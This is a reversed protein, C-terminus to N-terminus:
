LAGLSLPCETACYSLACLKHCGFSLDFPYSGPELLIGANCQSQCQLTVAEKCLRCQVIGPTRAEEAVSMKNAKKCKRLLCDRRCLNARTGSEDKCGEKCIESSLIICQDPDEGSYDPNRELTWSDDAKQGGNYTWENETKNTVVGGKTSKTECDFSNCLKKCSSVSQKEYKDCVELCNKRAKCLDESM